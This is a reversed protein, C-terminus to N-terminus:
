RGALAEHVGGAVVAVEVHSEPEVILAVGHIGDVRELGLGQVPSGGCAAAIENLPEQVHTRVGPHLTAHALRGQINGLFPAGM